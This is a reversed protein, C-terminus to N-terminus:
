RRAALGVIAALKGIGVKEQVLREHGERAAWRNVVALYLESKELLV